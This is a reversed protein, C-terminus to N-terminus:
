KAKPPSQIMNLQFARGAADLGFVMPKPRLVMALVLMVVGLLLWLPVWQAAFSLAKNMSRLRVYIEYSCDPGDDMMDVSAQSDQPVM